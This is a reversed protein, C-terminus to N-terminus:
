SGVIVRRMKQFYEEKRVIELHQDISKGCLCSTAGQNIMMKIFMCRNKCCAGWLGYNWDTVGLEIM